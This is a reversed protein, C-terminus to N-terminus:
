KTTRKTQSWPHEVNETEVHAGQASVTVSCKGIEQGLHRSHETSCPGTSSQQSDVSLLLLPCCMCCNPCMGQTKVGSLFVLHHLEVVRGSAHIEFKSKCEGTQMIWRYGLIHRFIYWMGFRDIRGQNQIMMPHSTPNFYVFAVILASFVLM